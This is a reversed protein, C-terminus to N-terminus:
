LRTWGLGVGNDDGNPSEFRAVTDIRQWRRTAPASTRPVPVLWTPCFHSPDQRRRRQEVLLRLECRAHRDGFRSHRLLGWNLRVSSEDIGTRHPASFMAPSQAIASSHRTHNPETGSSAHAQCACALILMSIEGGLTVYGDRSRYTLVASKTPPWQPWIPQRASQFWVFECVRRHAGPHAGCRIPLIDELWQRGFEDDSLIGGKRKNFVVWGQTTGREIDGLLPDNAAV